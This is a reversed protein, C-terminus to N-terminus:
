HRTLTPYSERPFYSREWAQYLTIQVQNLEELNSFSGLRTKVEPSVLWLEWDHGKKIEFKRLPKTDM